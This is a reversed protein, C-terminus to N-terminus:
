GKRGMCDVRTRMVALGGEPRVLLFRRGWYVLNFRLRGYRRLLSRMGGSSGGNVSAILGHTQGMECVGVYDRVLGEGRLLGRLLGLAFADEAADDDDEGGEDNEEGDDAEDCRAVPKALGHAVGEGLEVTGDGDGAERSGDGNLAVGVADWM